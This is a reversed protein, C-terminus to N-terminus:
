TTVKRKKEYYELTHMRAHESRTMVQLNSPDNNRKNGDIHHVVEDSRLKRGLMAEAVVRHTHRSFTKTYTKGEGTNLHANRLKIRTSFNMREPNLVENMKTMKTSLYERSCTRSCFVHEMFQSPCRTVLKGCKECAKTM